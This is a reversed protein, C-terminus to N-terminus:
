AAWRALFCTTRRGARCWACRASLNTTLMATVAAIPSAAAQVALLEDISCQPDVQLLTRSPLQLAPASGPLQSAVHRSGLQLTPSQAPLHSAVHRSGLQLTPSQASDHGRGEVQLQKRLAALESELRSREVDWALRDTQWAARWVEGCTCDAAVDSVSATRACAAMSSVIALIIGRRM